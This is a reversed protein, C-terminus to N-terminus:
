RLLFTSGSIPGRYDELPPEAGLISRVFENGLDQEAFYRRLGFACADAMQLLPEEQKNVFHIAQRIRTVRYDGKQNIHGAAKEASTPIVMGPPLVIPHDRLAKPVQRLYHRMNPVDEAVVTAVERLGAYDRIYRDAAAICQMFAMLHQYRVPDLHLQDLAEQPSPSDRRVM